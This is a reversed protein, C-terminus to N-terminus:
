AHRGIRGILYCYESQTNGVTLWYISETIAPSGETLHIRERLHMSALTKPHIAYIGTDASKYTNKPVGLHKALLDRAAERKDIVAGGRELQCLEHLAHLVSYWFAGSESTLIVVDDAIHLTEKFSIRAREVAAHADEPAPGQAALWKDIEQELARGIDTQFKGDLAPPRSPWPAANPTPRMVNAGLDKLAQVTELALPPCEAYPLVIILLDSYSDTAEGDAPVAATDSAAEIMQVVSDVHPELRFGGRQVLKVLRLRARVGVSKELQRRVGEPAGIVIISAPM